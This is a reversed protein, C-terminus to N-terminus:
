YNRFASCNKDEHNNQVGNKIFNGKQPAINDIDYRDEGHGEAVEESHTLPINFPEEGKRGNSLCTKNEQTDDTLTL